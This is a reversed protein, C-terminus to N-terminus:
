SGWKRWKVITGEPPITAETPINTVLVHQDHFRELLMHAYYQSQAFSLPDDGPRVPPWFCKEGIEPAWRINVSETDSDWTSQHWSGDVNHELPLECQEPEAWDGTDITHTSPCATKEATATTM